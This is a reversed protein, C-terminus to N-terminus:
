ERNRLLPEREGVADLESNCKRALGLLVAQIIAYVASDVAPWGVFMFWNVGSFWSGFCDWVANGLYTVRFPWTVALVAFLIAQAKLGPLSLARLPSGKWLRSAQFVVSLLGLLTIVPSLFVFHGGTFLAFMFDDESSHHDSKSGVSVLLIAPILSICLFAIYVVVVGIKHRLRSDSPYLLCLGFVAGMGVWGVGLQVLNVWDGWSKPTEVFMSSEGDPMTYYIFALLFQETACILNLLLYSLSIGSGDKRTWLLRLQPYFSAITLILLIVRLWGPFHQTAM